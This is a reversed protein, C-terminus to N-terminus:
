VLLAFHSCLTNSTPSGGGCVQRFLRIEGFLASFGQVECFDHTIIESALSIIEFFLYAFKVGHTFVWQLACKTRKVTRSETLNGGSSVMLRVLVDFEGSTALYVM